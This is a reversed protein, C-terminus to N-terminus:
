KPRHIWGPDVTKSGEFWVREYNYESYNWLIEEKPPYVITFPYEEKPLDMKNRYIGGQGHNCFAEYEYTNGTKLSMWFVPKDM